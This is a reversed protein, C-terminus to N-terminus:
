VTLSNGSIIRCQDFSDKDRVDLLLYPCGDLIKKELSDRPKLRDLEGEGKIVSYGILILYIITDTLM